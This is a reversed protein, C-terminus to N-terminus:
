RRIAGAAAQELFLATYAEIMKAIDFQAARAPGAAALRRRLEPNDLLGDMGARFAVEDEPPVVWGSIGHEVM